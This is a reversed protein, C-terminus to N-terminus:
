EKLYSRVHMLHKNPLLAVLSATVDDLRRITPHAPEETEIEPLIALLEECKELFPKAVKQDYREHKAKELASRLIEELTM